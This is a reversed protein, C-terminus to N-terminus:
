FWLAEGLHKVFAKTAAYVGFRPVAAFAAVSGVLVVHGRRRAVMGPLLRHTLDTVATVNLQIMGLQSSRDDAAFHRTIGVGANNVLLDVELGREALAAELEGPGEPRGLDAVVVEAGGIEDALARLKDERRAVLVLKCGAGALLRAMEAGIGSSAGTVLATWGRFRSLDAM